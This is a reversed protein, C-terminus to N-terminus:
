YGYIDMGARFTNCHANVIDKIHTAYGGGMAVACPIGRQQLAQFVLEDRQRCGAATVKLKGFKDSDLIDVGSLYFVLDPKVRDILVPLAATLEVLYADTTMGDPLPIDWDSTEKHFPYNHAGHMSFTYVNANHAFLAATGNGQHVDLDIVLLQKVKKQQLLYNAAVGFDNLLCFGEGHDAFAHHTGGAINFGIGQELAHLAIDITGQTIVIERQTLAPSQLFGIRRQERDSLTQQQLKHWYERTHTLLIVEEPAPEPTFLLDETIIGERLLQTAMLEYKLMPFRHDAPLPHTYIDHYAIKM